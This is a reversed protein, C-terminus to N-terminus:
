AWRRVVEAARTAVERIKESYDGLQPAYRLFEVERLVERAERERPDAPASGDAGLTGFVDHLTKEILAASAEKTMRDKGARSLDSLARRVSPRPAARGQHRRRRDAVIVGLWLGGHLLLALGLGV